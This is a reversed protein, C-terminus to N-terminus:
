LGDVCSQAPIFAASLADADEESIKPKRADILGNQLKDEYQLLKDDADETKGQYLKEAAGLVKSVLGNRDRPKLSTAAETALCLTQLENYCSNSKMTACGPASTSPPGAMASGAMLTLLGAFAIPRTVNLLTAAMNRIKM